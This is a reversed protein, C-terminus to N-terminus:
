QHHQQQHYQEVPTYPSIQRNHHPTNIEGGFDQSTNFSEGMLDSINNTTPTMTNQVHKGLRMQANKSTSPTNQLRHHHLMKQRSHLAENMMSHSDNTENANKAQNTAEEYVHHPLFPQGQHPYGKHGGLNNNKRKNFNAHMNMPSYIMKPLRQCKVVSRYDEPLLYPYYDPLMHHPQYMM